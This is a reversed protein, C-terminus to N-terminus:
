TWNRRQFSRVIASERRALHAITVAASASASPLCFKIERIEPKGSASTVILWLQGATAKDFLADYVYTRVYRHQRWYTFDGSGIGVQLVTESHGPHVDHVRGFEEFAAMLMTEVLRRESEAEHASYTAPIHFLKAACRADNSEVCTIAANVIPADAVAQASCGALVAMM